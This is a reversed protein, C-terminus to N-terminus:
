GDFAQHVLECPDLVSRSTEKLQASTNGNIRVSFRSGSNEAGVVM